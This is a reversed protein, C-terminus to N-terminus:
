GGGGDGGGFIPKKLFNKKGGWKSLPGLIGKEGGEKTGPRGRDGLSGELVQVQGKRIGGKGSGGALAEIPVQKRAPTRGKYVHKVADEKGL